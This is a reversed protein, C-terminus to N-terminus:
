KIMAELQPILNQITPTLPDDPALEIFKKFSDVAMKYNALNLYAYGRQRYPPPWDEKIAIAKEFFEVGRGAEGQKFLIEGINFALTEDTPFLELAQQLFEVAKDLEGTKIYTEGIGSLARAAGEDGELTGKEENIKALMDNYATIAMDSNGLERHCNGINLKVQYLAPNMTEFEQFKVLAEAYNEEEFLGNAEEFLALAAENEIGPVGAQAVIKELTLTIPENNSAFQSVKMEHFAPSYGEKEATIVFVGTGLGAIAWAGKKNTKGEFKTHFQAHEALLKVGELPNGETDVVEGRIRGKGRGQQALAPAATALILIAVLLISSTYHRKM